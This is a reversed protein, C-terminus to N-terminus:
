GLRDKIFNKTYCDFLPKVVTEWMAKLGSTPANKDDTELLPCRYNITSSYNWIMFKIQETMRIQPDEKDKSLALRGSLCSYVDKQTLLYEIISSCHYDIGACCLDNFNLKTLGSHCVIDSTILEVSKEHSVKHLIRPLDCWHVVKSETVLDGLADAHVLKSQFRKLWTIAFSHLMEVDCKMGGYEARLLISRILMKCLNDNPQNNFLLHATPSKLSLYSPLKDNASKDIYDDRSTADQRACSAVEFVIQMVRKVLSMCPCYGKSEAVMLWVLLGFDPHLTSDELVIIPLRRILEAWSRDALEMAVRVAPFPARRRISKQLCSKLQSVSLRSHKRVLRMNEIRYPLSSSMTLELAKQQHREDYSTDVMKTNICKVKKMMIIASWHVDRSLDASISAGIETGNSEGDHNGGDCNDQTTWTVYGESNHLHFQHRIVNGDDNNRSKNTSFVVSSREMMLSFVNKTPPTNIVASVTSISSAHKANTEGDDKEDCHGGLCRDLHDNIDFESVLTRCGVPCSFLSSSSSHPRKRNGSDAM